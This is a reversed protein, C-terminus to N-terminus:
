KSVAPHEKNYVKRVIVPTLLATVIAATVIQTTAGTVYPALDPNAQAIIAPFSASVGAVATMSLGSVGDTKLLVKDTLYVPSMFFYYVVVLLLGYIGSQVGEILNMGQGINWGLIPLLVMIAPGFLKPIDKDLNGLVVGLILPLVTSFIPMWDIAGQGSIAYIFMPAAPIGFLGILSFAAVDIEDGFDQSLSIYLAPNISCLAIIFALASIGFIGAQGFFTVYLLGLVVCLIFKVLLLVGHHKLLKGITKFNIGMGSVFSLMGVVFSTGNGGLFADTVGGINSFLNPWITYVIASLIMPVLFTGAPIRSMFKVM